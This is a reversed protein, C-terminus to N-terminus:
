PTSRVNSPFMEVPVSASAFSSSSARLLPSFFFKSNLAGAGNITSPSCSSLGALADYERFSSTSVIVAVSNDDALYGIETSGLIYMSVARLSIRPFLSVFMSKSM